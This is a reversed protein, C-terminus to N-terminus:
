IGGTKGRRAGAAAGACGKARGGCGHRSGTRLGTSATPLTWGPCANCSRGPKKLLGTAPNEIVLMLPDFHAIIELASLVLADGEEDSSPQVGHLGPQGLGHRLAGASVARLGLEPHRM